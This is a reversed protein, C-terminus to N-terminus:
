KYITWDVNRGTGATQKITLKWQKTVTMAPIYVIPSAFNAEDNQSDAYRAYYTRRLTGAALLKEYVRIEFIDGSAANGLDLRADFVEGENATEDRLTHETGVVCTQTGSAVVTRAM